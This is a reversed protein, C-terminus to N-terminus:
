EPDIGDKLTRDWLRRESLVEDWREPDARLRAYGANFQEMFVRRRETEIADEVVKQMSRGTQKAILRLNERTRDSVRVPAGM